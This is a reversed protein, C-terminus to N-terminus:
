RGQAPAAGQQRHRSHHLAGRHDPAREHPRQAIGGSGSLHTANRPAGSVPCPQGLQHHRQRPFPHQRGQTRPTAGPGQRPADFANKFPGETM